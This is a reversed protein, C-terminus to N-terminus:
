KRRLPQKGKVELAICKSAEDLPLIVYIGPESFLLTLRTRRGEDIRETDFGSM